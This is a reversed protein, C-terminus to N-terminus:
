IAELGSVMRSNLHALYLDKCSRPPTGKGGHPYRVHDIEEKIDNIEQFLEDNESGTLLLRTRCSQCSFQMYDLECFDM